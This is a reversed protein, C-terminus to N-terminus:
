PSKASPDKAEHSNESEKLKSPNAIITLDGDEETEEDIDLSNAAETLAELDKEVEGVELTNANADNPHRKKLRLYVNGVGWAM